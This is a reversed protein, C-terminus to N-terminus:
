LQVIGPKFFFGKGRGVREKLLLVGGSRLNRKTSGLGAEREDSM